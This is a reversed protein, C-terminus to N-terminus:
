LKLFCRFAFPDVYSLQLGCDLAAFPNFIMILTGSLSFSNFTDARKFVIKSFQAIIYMIGARVVSPTFGMIGMLILIFVINLSARLKTRLKMRRLFYETFSMIIAFHMGSVVLLHSIGLRRFDREATDPLGKRNGLLVASALGGAENETHASILSSLKERVSTFVYSFSFSAREEVVALEDATAFLMIGDSRYYREADFGCTKLSSLPYYKLKGSLVTGRKLGAESCELLIRTGRSLKDSEVIKVTYRSIYSLSYECDTVEATIRDEADDYKDFEAIYFDFVAASYVGATIVASVLLLAGRRIKMGSRVDAVSIIIFAAACVLVIILKVAFLCYAFLCFSVFFGTFMATYPYKEIHEM